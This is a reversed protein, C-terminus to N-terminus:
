AYLDTYIEKKDPFSSQKAFDIAVNMEEEIQSKFKNIMEQSLINNKLLKNEYNDLPCKQRWEEYEAETRYGLKNDYNPGCHERFRYTELEIFAPGKGDRVHDIAKKSIKSVEEVDNGYGKESYIGYAKAINLNERADTQRVSLPSYVSYLNNECVFLIPLDKLASFNLTECFVGEESAADGLFVVTVRKENKMQVGYAVGAAVPIVGGVIPTSGLYNADLDVLHMSGGKGKCCGTSKGYIEAMMRKLDGGKALYHGHSRHNSMMYDGSQLNNCVGVAIAEQGACLHVPCRMEQEPYLKAITEEIMRIRLVNYYLSIERKAEM